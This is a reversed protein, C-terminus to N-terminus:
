YEREYIFLVLRYELKKEIYEYIKREKLKDKPVGRNIYGEFIQLWFYVTVSQIGFIGLSLYTAADANNEFMIAQFKNLIQPVYMGLGITSSCLGYNMMDQSIRPRYNKLVKFEKGLSLTIIAVDYLSKYAWMNLVLESLSLISDYLKFTFAKRVRATIELKDDKHPLAGIQDQPHKNNIIFSAMSKERMKRIIGSRLIKKSLANYNDKFVNKVNGNGNELSNQFEGFLSRISNLSQPGFEQTLSYKLASQATELVNESLFQGMSTIMMTKFQDHSIIAEPQFIKTCHETFEYNTNLCLNVIMNEFYTVNPYIGFMMENNEETMSIPNFRPFLTSYTLYSLILPIAIAGIFKMLMLGYDIPADDQDDNNTFERQNTSYNERAEYRQNM